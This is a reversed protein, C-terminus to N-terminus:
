AADALIQEIAFRMQRVMGPNTDRYYGLAAVVKHLARRLGRLWTADEAGVEARFLARRAGTFGGDSGTM